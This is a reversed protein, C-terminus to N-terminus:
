AAPPSQVPEVPKIPRRLAAELRLAMESLNSKEDQMRKPEPAPPIQFVPEFSPPVPAAHAPLEFSPQPYFAPGADPLPTPLPTPLPPAGVEESLTELRQREIPTPLPRLMAAERVPRPPPPEVYVPEDPPLGLGELSLTQRPPPLPAPVPAPAVAGTRDINSEVVVDTPGGILLLHEVDDRRVLVLRRRGDVSAANLLGPDVSPAMSKRM